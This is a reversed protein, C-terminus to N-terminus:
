DHGVEGREPRAKTASIGIGVMFMLVASGACIAEADRFGVLIAALFAAVAMVVAPILVFLARM